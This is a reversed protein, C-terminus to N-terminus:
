LSLKTSLGSDRVVIPGRKAERGVPYGVFCFDLQAGRIFQASFSLPCDREYKHHSAETLNEYKGDSPITIDAYKGHPTKPKSKLKIVAFDVNEARQSKFDVFDGETFHIVENGM